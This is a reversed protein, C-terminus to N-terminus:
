IHTHPRQGKTKADNVTPCVSLCVYEKIYRNVIYETCFVVQLSILARQYVIVFISDDEVLGFKIPRFAKLDSWLLVTVTAEAATEIM